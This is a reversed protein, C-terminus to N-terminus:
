SYIVKIAIILLLFLLHSFDQCTKLVILMTLKEQNVLQDTMAAAHQITSTLVCMNELTKM